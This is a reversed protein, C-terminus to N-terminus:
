CVQSVASWFSYCFHFSQWMEHWSLNRWRTGKNNQLHEEGRPRGTYCSIFESLCIKSPSIIGRQRTMKSLGFRYTLRGEWDAPRSGVLAVMESENWKMQLILINLSNWREIAPTSDVIKDLDCKKWHCWSWHCKCLKKTWAVIGDYAIDFSCRSDFKRGRSIPIEQYNRISCHYTTEQQWM